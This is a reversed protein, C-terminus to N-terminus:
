GGRGKDQSWAQRFQEVAAACANRILFSDVAWVLVNAGLDLASDVEGRNKVLLGVAKGAKRGERAAHHVFEQVRPHGVNGQCGLALSMDYVGLYLLDLNPVALVQDLERYAGETELIVATLGFGNNLKGDSMSPPPNYEAVRTFPNYGRTGDPAYKTSRVAVEAARANTLQPFIVGHAGLDLATQVAFPNFGPVRVLPSCGAVEAARICNDLTGPEFVGHEMDLIQFDLGACALIEVVIPSPIISWIGLVPRGAALKQKLPNETMRM